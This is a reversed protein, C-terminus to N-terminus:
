LLVSLTRIVYWQPANTCGNNCHFIFVCKVVHTHNQLRLYGAYLTCAGYQWRHDAGTYLVNEVNGWVLRSKRFFYISWLIHTKIAEVVKTQFIKWELLFQTPYSWFHRTIKVNIEWVATPFISLYSIECFDTWHLRTTGHTCVSPHISPCVHRLWFDSKAIKRVRRFVLSIWYM